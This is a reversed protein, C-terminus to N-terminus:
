DLRRPAVAGPFLKEMQDSSRRYADASMRAPTRRLSSGLGMTGNIEDQTPWNRRGDGAIRRRKSDEAQDSEDDDDQEGNQTPDDSAAQLVAELLTEARARDAPDSLVEDWFAEMASMAKMTQPTADAVIRRRRPAADAALRRDLLFLGERNTNLPSPMARSM